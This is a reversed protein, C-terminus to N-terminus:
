PKPDKRTIEGYKKIIIITPTTWRKENRTKKKKATCFKNEAKQGKKNERDQGERM